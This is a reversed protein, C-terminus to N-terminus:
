FAGVHGRTLDRAWCVPLEERQQRLCNEVDNEDRMHANGCCKRPKSQLANEKPPREQARLRDPASGVRPRLAIDKRVRPSREPPAPERQHVLLVRKARSM